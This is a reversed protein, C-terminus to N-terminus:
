LHLEADMRGHLVRVVIIQGPEEKFYILHSGVVYKMYGSRVEVKRGKRIGSALAHCAYRITDTYQDAQDMDWRRATYDWIKDIDTAAAPSLVFGKM